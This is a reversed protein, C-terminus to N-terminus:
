SLVTALIALAPAIGVSKGIKENLEITHRTNKNTNGDTFKSLTENRILLL